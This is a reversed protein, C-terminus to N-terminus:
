IQVGGVVTFISTAVPLGDLGRLYIAGTTAGVLAALAAVPATNWTQRFVCHVDVVTGLPGIFSILQGSTSDQFNSALSRLSPRCGVCAPQVSMSTDTHVLEDGQSPGTPGTFAVSVTTAAGAASSAWVKVKKVKVTQFVQYGQTASTAVLWTNLLMGATINANGATMAANAIFRMTVSHTVQYGNLQPPHSITRDVLSKNPGRPLRRKQQTSRKM